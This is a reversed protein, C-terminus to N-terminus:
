VHGAPASDLSNTHLLQPQQQAQPRLVQQQQQQEQVLVCNLVVLRGADDQAWKVRYSRGDGSPHLVEEEGLPVLLEGGDPLDVPVLSNGSQAAAELEAQLV